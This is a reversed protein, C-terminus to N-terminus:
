NFVIVLSNTLTESPACNRRQVKFLVVNFYTCVKFNEFETLGIGFDNFSAITYIGSWSIVGRNYDDYSKIDSSKEDIWKSLDSM